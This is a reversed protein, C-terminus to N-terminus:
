IHALAITMVGLILAVVVSLGVLAPVLAIQSIRYRCSKEPENYWNLNFWFGGCGVVLAIWFITVAM